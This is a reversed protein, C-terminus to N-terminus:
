GLRRSVVTYDAIIDSLDTDASVLGSIIIVYDKYSKPAKNTRIQRFTGGKRQASIISKWDHLNDSGFVTFGLYHHGALNADVYLILRQIHTYLLELSFPRSQLFINTVTSDESHLDVVRRITYVHELAYRYSNKDQLYYKDVKHFVKTDLNFVYSYCSNTSKGENSIYLENRLQDYTLTAGEAFQEFDMASLSQPKGYLSTVVTNYSQNSRIQEDRKGNLQASVDAADRGVLVYLNKSSFFFIGHPTAKAQGDIVMPQLPVVNGYLVNSNSQELAFIGNDTFVTIPYQGIQTSSIPLYSTVVDLIKGGFSYSNSVPFVYPNFQASVNIANTEERLYVSQGHIEIFGTIDPADCPTSLFVDLACSYNYAESDNFEIKYWVSTGNSKYTRLYGEKIGALPYVLDLTKQEAGAYSGIQVKITNSDCVIKKEKGNDIVVYLKADRIEIYNNASPLEINSHMGYSPKQLTHMVDSNYYHFRNNYSIVDGSRSIAGATVPMLENGALNTETNLLFDGSQRYSMVKQLYMTQAGLNIEKNGIKKAYYTTSDTTDIEYPTQPLSSYFKINKIETTNSYNQINFSLRAEKAGYVTIGTSTNKISQFRNDKTPDIISFGTSWVESGDELEFTCGVVIPGALGHPYAKYFQSMAASLANRSVGIDDVSDRSGLASVSFGTLDVSLEVSPVTAVFPEYTNDKFRFVSQSNDSNTIVIINGACTVSKVDVSSLLTQKVTVSSPEVWIVSDSTTAIFNSISGFKHETIAKYANASGNVIKKNKVIQAGVATPRINILEECAGAAQFENVRRNIGTFKLVKQPM